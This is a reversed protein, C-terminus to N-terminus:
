LMCKGERAAAFIFMDPNAFGNSCGSSFSDVSNSDIDTLRGSILDDFCIKVRSEVINNSSNNGM